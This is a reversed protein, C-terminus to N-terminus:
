TLVASLSIELGHLRNLFWLLLRYRVLTEALFFSQQQDDQIARSGKATADRIGSCM